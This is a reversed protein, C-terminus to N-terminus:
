FLIFSLLFFLGLMEQKEQMKEIKRKRLEQALRIQEKREMEERMKFMESGAKRRNKEREIEEIREQIEREVRRQKIREELRKKEMEKEEENFDKKIMIEQSQQEKSALTETSHDVVISEDIVQCEDDEIFNRSIDDKECDNIIWDMVQDLSECNTAEIGKSIKSQEFGM